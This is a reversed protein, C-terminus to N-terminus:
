GGRDAGRNRSLTDIFETRSEALQANREARIGDRLDPPISGCGALLASCLVTTLVLQNFPLTVSM